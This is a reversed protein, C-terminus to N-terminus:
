TERRLVGESHGEPHFGDGVFWGRDFKVHVRGAVAGDWHVPGSGGPDSESGPGWGIRTLEGDTFTVSVGGFPGEEAM